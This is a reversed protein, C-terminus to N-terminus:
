GMKEVEVIRPLRSEGVEYDQGAGRRALDDIWGENPEVRDGKSLECALYLWSLANGVTSVEDSVHRIAYESMRQYLADDTWIEYLRQAVADTDGVDVLFGSEGDQVQLPLGGARTVIVPKGKHAAESVKIEFGERRSLQLAIKSKSLLANLVQDSPRLRMVCIKDRLHPIVEEIHSVVEDYILSGDPDDVSGHGAILLKPPTTQPHTKTLHAHFKKYSEVADLIGKSPDFRAIQVIYKDEPYDIPPMGSNRCWSNFARGYYAVDWDRMNKNLGDLWDTSAPMFGVREKPINKPVFSSVPHSIFIDALKISEWLRGWVEAQPTDPTAILDSRIHIHSRFIVPRDPAMNKAIPILPAMQPDDVVVIHAGGESPPQLPGECSLWYRKANEYIWDSIQEYDKGTLRDNPKSVGQLINHNNKTLRFVGPRPKPVYWSIETGLTHALRVLAHRMLAVGGGQPTANFFATRVKRKKLDAAYHQVASWTKSSVTKQFDELSALCVTFATDVEVMGQFGVQLLPVNDPGFLRVCKRGMSEAQEGIERSDVNVGTPLDRQSQQEILRRDEPLVIPIVDLETWLRSCLEPCLKAVRQPMALGMFKDSHEDTFRRLRSLVYNIIVVHSPGTEGASMDRQIFDLLYTTDRIALSVTSMSNMTWVSLGAYIKGSPPASWANGATACMRRQQYQSPRRSGEREESTM